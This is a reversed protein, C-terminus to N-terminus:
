EVVPLAVVDYAHRISRKLVPDTLSFEFRSSPRIGGIAPCTGCLMATGAALTGPRGLYGAILDDVPRIAGLAGEQYLIRAGGDVVHATMVLEDWHPGVDDLLWVQRSIPKECLQKSVAISYQEVRRDTHDSGVGVLLGHQSAIVVAEVEGSSNQGLVQIRDSMTLLSASARYYCPMRSPRVVGISALEEAHKELAREDRGTWGCVVLDAADVDAAIRGSRLVVEFTLANGRPAAALSRSSTQAPPPVDPM